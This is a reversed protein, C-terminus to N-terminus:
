RNERWAGGAGARRKFGILLALERWRLDLLRGDGAGLDLVRAAGQPLEDLLAAEGASRHPVQDARELYAGAHWENM